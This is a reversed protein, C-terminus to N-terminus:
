NFAAGSSDVLRGNIAGLCIWRELRDFRVARLMEPAEKEGRRFPM